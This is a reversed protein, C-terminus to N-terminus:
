PVQQDLHLTIATVAKTDVTVRNAQIDGSAANAIGSMSIRASIDLKEFSELRTGPRLLDANSFRLSLPFGRAPMRKVALPMGAGGSPHIFVFMTANAPISQALEPAVTITAPIEFKTVQGQKAGPAPTNAAMPTGNIGLRGQAMEIQQTVNTAAGSAPDLLGLLKQWHAIAQTDNGDQAAIMGMLWLGKQHNPDIALASEILQRSEPGVHAQGSAFLRSEALEVMVMPNDPLLRNATTLATKAEEYRQMAKLTRGLILWGQPNDPNEKLRQQLSAVMGDLEGQSAHAQQQDAAAQPKTAAMNIATPTGIQQYLLLGALPVMLIIFVGTLREKGPGGLLPWSIIIAPVVLLAIAFIWFNM